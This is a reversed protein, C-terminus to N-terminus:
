TNLFVLCCKQPTEKIQFPIGNEYRDIRRQYKRRAADSLNDQALIEQIVRLARDFEGVWAYAAALTDLNSASRETRVALGAYELAANGDCVVDIPCTALLWALRNAAKVDGQESALSYWKVAEVFDKQVGLGKRYLYGMAGQSPAHGQMAAERYHALAKEYDRPVGAAREYAQGLYFNGTVVGRAVGERLLELGKQENRAVGAGDMYMEGLAVLAVDYGQQVALILYEAALSDNQEVGRGDRYLNALNVQSAPYGLAAAKQYWEAARAFDLEVHEALIGLHNLTLPHEPNLRIAENLDQVALGYRKLLSYAIGRNSYAIATETDDLEGGEIADSLLTIVDYYRGEAAAQQATTFVSKGQDEEAFVPFYVASLVLFLIFFPM